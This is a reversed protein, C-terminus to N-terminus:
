QDHDSTQSEMANEVGGVLSRHFGLALESEKDDKETEENGVRTFSQNRANHFANNATEENFYYRYGFSLIGFLVCSVCASLATNMIEATYVDDIEKMGIIKIISAPISLSMFGFQIIKFKGAINYESLIEKSAMLLAQSGYICLLTSVM